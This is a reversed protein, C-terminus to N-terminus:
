MMEPGESARPMQPPVQDSRLIGVQQEVYAGNRFGRRKRTDLIPDQGTILLTARAKYLPDESTVQAYAILGGLGM